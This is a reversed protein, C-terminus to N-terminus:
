EKRLVYMMQESDAEPADRRYGGYFGEIVFGADTFLKEFQDPLTYRRQITFEKKTVSGDPATIEFQKGQYDAQIDKNLSFINWSRIRNGTRPDVVENRFIPEPSCFELRKWPTYVDLLVFASDSMHARISELARKQDLETLFYNFTYYPIIVLEFVEGLELECADAQVVSVRDRAEPPENKLRARLLSLMSPSIDVAVVRAGSRAMPLTLRGSGAGIELVRTKVSSAFEMYFPLDDLFDGVYVDYVESYEGYVDTGDAKAM